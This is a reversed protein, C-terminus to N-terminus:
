LKTLVIGVQSPISIAPPISVSAINSPAEHQFCLGLPTCGTIDPPIVMLRLWDDSGFLWGLNQIHLRNSRSAKGAARSLLPISPL